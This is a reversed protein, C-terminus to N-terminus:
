EELIPLRNGLRSLLENNITHSASSLVTAPLLPGIITVVDNYKVNPIDTLDVITQDMCIRGIVPLDKGNLRFHIQNSLVRPLGDAYGIPLVGIISNRQLTYTRGYGITEQARLHRILILRTSLSLVPRLSPHLITEEGQSSPIGFLSIGIRAYQYKLDPYNLLGASNQLHLPPIPINKEKLQQICSNFHEIQARTYAIDEKQFSDATCLHSFIGTVKLYPLHFQQQIADIDQYDTGIRHMGTDIAIHVKLPIHQENLAKAYPLDILTQTINYHHLQYAQDISTHGLVLINGQIGYHRLAIAEEITATAFFHVGCQEAISAITYAGHGYANAKVVAMMECGEQMCNTLEKVNHSVAGTDITIWSRGKLSPRKKTPVLRYLLYSLTITILTMWLFLTMNNYHISVIDFLKQLVIWVLPHILYIYMSIPRCFSYNGKKITLLIEFLFYMVPVLFLYMADHHPSSYIHLFTAEFTMISAFFLFGIQYIKRSAYKREQRIYGGLVFFFPAFFLGNRTYGFLTYIKQYFSSLCPFFEGLFSWSDGGLGILYLIGTMVFAINWNWKRVCIWAILGGFFAAPIYWLTYYTGESILCRLFTPFSTLYPAKTYLNLPLYLLFAFLGISFIKKLYNQIPTNDKAYHQICFFGSTMFFFPVAIRALIRVTFFNAESSFVLFPYSHGIMVLIAALFRFLDIGPYNKHM